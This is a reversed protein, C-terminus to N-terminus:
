KNILKKLKQDAMYPHGQVALLPCDPSSLCHLIELVASRPCPMCSLVSLVSCHFCSLFYLIAPFFLQPCSHQPLVAPIPLRPLVSLVPCVPGSLPLIDPHYLRSLFSLVPHGSYSLLVPCIPCSLQSPVVTAPCGHCYLQAHCRLCSM